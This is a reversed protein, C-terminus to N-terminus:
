NLLPIGMVHFYGPTAITLFADNLPGNAASEGRFKTVMEISPEGLFPLACAAAASEVGPLARVHEILTDFFQAQQQPKPFRDWIHLEKVLVNNRSFGPDVHFLNLFRRTLLGGGILLVPALSIQSVTSLRRLADGHSNSEIGFGGRLALLKRSTITHASPAITFIIASFVAVAATFLAVRWDIAVEDIRPFDQPSFRPFLRTLCWAAGLGIISGTGAISIAEIALQRVIRWKGAGLATRL